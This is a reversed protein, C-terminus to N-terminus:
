CSTLLMNSELEKQCNGKSLVKRKHLLAFLFCKFCCLRVSCHPPNQLIHTWSEVTTANQSQDRYYDAQTQLPCDHSCKGNSVALLQTVPATTTLTGLFYM